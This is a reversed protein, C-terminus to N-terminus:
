DLWSVVARELRSAKDENAAALLETARADRLRISQIMASMIATAVLAFGALVFALLLAVSNTYNLGAVLMTVVSVAFGIGARTPLIYLRRRGLTLPLRDPGQRRRAWEAARQRVGERLKTM